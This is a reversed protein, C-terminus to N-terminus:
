VTRQNIVRDSNNWEMINLSKYIGEGTKESIPEPFFYYLLPIKRMLNKLITGWRFRLTNKIKKSGIKKSPKTNITIPM